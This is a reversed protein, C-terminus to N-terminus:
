LAEKIEVGNNPTPIVYDGLSKNTESNKSGNNIELHLKFAKVSKKNELKESTSKDDDVSAYKNIYYENSEDKFHYAKQKKWIRFKEIALKGKWAKPSYFAFTFVACAEVPKKVSFEFYHNILNVDYKGTQPVYFMFDTRVGDIRETNNSAKRFGVALHDKGPQFLAMNSDLEEFPTKFEVSYTKGSDLSFTKCNDVNLNAVYCEHHIRTNIENRAFKELYMMNRDDDRGRIPCPQVEATTPGDIFKFPANSISPSSPTDETGLLSPLLRFSQVSDAMAVKQASALDSFNTGNACASYEEDLSEIYNTARVTACRRYLINNSPDLTWSVLRVGINQGNNRNLIIKKFAISDYNKGNEKIRHKLIFSSSDGTGIYVNENLLFEDDILVGKITDKRAPNILASPDPDRYAKAGMQSMDEKIIEIIRNWKETAKTMNQTKIRMSTSDSFVRGAVIIIFGLLAMYILLEILTFAKKM